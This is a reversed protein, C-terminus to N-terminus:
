NFDTKFDYDAKVEALDLTIQDLDDMVGQLNRESRKNLKKTKKRIDKM